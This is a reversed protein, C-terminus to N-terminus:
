AARTRSVLFGAACVLAGVGEAWASLLKGPSTWTPEYMNPVPGLTGPDVYTYLVVAAFASALLLFAILWVARRPVLLLALAVVVAAVAETRFLQEQSVWRTTVASYIEADTWHVYADVFLAAAAVVALLRVTLSGGRGRSRRRSSAGTATRDPM